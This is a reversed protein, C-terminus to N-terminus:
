GEYERRRQNVLGHARRIPDPLRYRSTSRLTLAIADDIAMWHGPSVFVPKVHSRTRVVAGIRNGRYVLPSTAGKEAGVPRHDGVLRSKACGATPLNLWLGMHSAIGLGRPHAIGQGDFLVADPVTRLEAFAALLVPAERFSLLGSIYPFSVQHCVVVEEIVKGSEIDMVIVGGFATQDHRSYSVDAGALLRVPQSLPRIQVQKRLQQQLQVAEQPSIDWTHLPKIIM